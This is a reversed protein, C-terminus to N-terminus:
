ETVKMWTDTGRVVLAKVKKHEDREFRVAWGFGDVIFDDGSIHNLHKKANDWLELAVLQGNEISLTLYFEMNDERKMKYKGTYASLSDTVITACQDTRHSQHSQLSGAIGLM